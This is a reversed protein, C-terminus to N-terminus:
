TIVTLEALQNLQAYESQLVGDMYYLAGGFQDSYAEQLQQLERELSNLLARLVTASAQQEYAVPGAKASFNVALQMVKARVLNFGAMIIVLQQLHEPLGSGDSEKTITTTNSTYGVLMGRLRTQWFGDLIYGDLVAGSVDELQEAGPVNIRRALQARLDSVATM